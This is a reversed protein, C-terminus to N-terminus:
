QSKRLFKAKGFFVDVWIPDFIQVTGPMVVDRDVRSSVEWYRSTLCILVVMVFAASWYLLRILWSAM